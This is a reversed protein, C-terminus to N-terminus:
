SNLKLRESEVKKAVTAMLIEAVEIAVLRENNEANEEPQKEEPESKKGSFLWTILSESKQKEAGENKELIVHVVEDSVLKTSVDYWGLKGAGDIMKILRDCAKQKDSLFYYGILPVTQVGTPRCLLCEKKIVADDSLYDLPDKAGVFQHVLLSLLV